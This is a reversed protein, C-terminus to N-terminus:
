AWWSARRTSTSTGGRSSPLISSSSSSTPASTSPPRTRSVGEAAEGGSHRLDGPSRPAGGQLGVQGAGGDLQPGPLESVGGAHAQLGTSSAWHASVPTKGGGQEYYLGARGRTALLMVDERQGAYLRKGGNREALKDQLKTLEARWKPIDPLEAATKVKPTGLAQILAEMEAVSTEKLVITDSGDEPRLEFISYGLDM